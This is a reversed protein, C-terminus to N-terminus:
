GWARAPWDPTRRPESLAVPPGRASAGECAGRWRGCLDHREKRKGAAQAPAALWRNFARSSPQGRGRAGAVRRLIHDVCPSVWHADTRLRARSGCQVVLRWVKRPGRRTESSADVPKLRRSSRRPWVGFPRAGDARQFATLPRGYGTTGGEILPRRAPRKIASAQATDNAMRKPRPLVPFWAAGPRCSTLAPRAFTDPGARAAGIGSSRDGSARRAAAGTNEGLGAAGAMGGPSAGRRPAAGFLPGSACRGAGTELGAGGAGTEAGAGGAGTEAGARDGRAVAEVAGM